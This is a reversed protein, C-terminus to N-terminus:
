PPEHPKREVAQEPEDRSRLNRARPQRVIQTPEEVVFDDELANADVRIDQRDVDATQPNEVLAARPDQAELRQM